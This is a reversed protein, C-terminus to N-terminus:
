VGDIAASTESATQHLDTDAFARFANEGALRATKQRELPLTRLSPNTESDSLRAILHALVTAYNTGDSGGGLAAIMTQSKDVTRRALAIHRAAAILLDMGEDHVAALDDLLGEFEDDLPPVANGATHVNV